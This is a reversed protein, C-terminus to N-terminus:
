VRILGVSFPLLKRCRTLTGHAPQNPSQTNGLPTEGIRRPSRALLGNSEDVVLKLEIQRSQQWSAINVCQIDASARKDAAFHPKFATTAGQRDAILQEVQELLKGAIASLM